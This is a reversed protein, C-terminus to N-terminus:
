NKYKGLNTNWQTLLTNHVDIDHDIRELEEKKIFIDSRIKKNALITEETKYYEKILRNTEKQSVDIMFKRQENTSIKNKLKSIDSEIKDYSQKLTHYQDYNLEADVYLDLKSKLEKKEKLLVNAIKKDYELEEKVKLADKVFVNDICYECEPDYKHDKLTDLKNMKQRVIFRLKDIENEKNTIKLSISKYEDYNKKIVEFEGPIIIRKKNSELTTLYNKDKILLETINRIENEFKNKDSELKSIDSINDDVKSLDESLKLISNSIATRIKKSKDLKESVEIVSDNINKIDAIITKKNEVLWDINHFKLKTNVEKYKDHSIKHLKDYITLGMFQCILDKRESQTLEIFSGIKTNQLSLVTLVFDEYTGIYDKIINKTNRKAEGNLNIINGDVEKWFDLSVKITGKKDQKGIKEIVYDVGDIEFTFKCKFDKKYINLVDNALYGRSFKDFMCYCISDFISSKGDTNKAFLGVIGKLNTFDIVNNKGYSFMNSFEFKKPIWRINKDTGNSENSILSNIETNLKIINEIHEESQEKEKLYDSLIKNQYSVDSFDNVKFNKTNFIDDVLENEKRIYSIELVNTNSKILNTIKTLDQVSTNLYCVRVRANKPINDIDSIIEGADVDVTFYGYDNELTYHKFTTNNLDWVVYGHGNYTEGHNQQIMSSPYVIKPSKKRIKFKRM